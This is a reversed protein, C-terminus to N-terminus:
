LCIKLFFYKLLLYLYKKTSNHIFPNIFLYATIAFGNPIKIGKPVLQRYMEGLSANKGGVFGVSSPTKLLDFRKYYYYNNNDSNYYYYLGDDNSLEEFWLIVAKAKGSEDRKKIPKPHKKEKQPPPTETDKEKDSSM